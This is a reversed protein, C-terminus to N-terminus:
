AGHTDLGTSLCEASKATNFGTSVAGNRNSIPGFYVTSYIFVV